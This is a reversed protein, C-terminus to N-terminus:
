RTGEGEEDAGQGDASLAREDRDGAAHETTMIGSDTTVDQTEELPEDPHGDVRRGGILNRAVSLARGAGTRISGSGGEDLVRGGAPRESSVEPDVHAGKPMEGGSGASGLFRRDFEDALWRYALSGRSSPDYAIAPQGYSPAESLRVSRPVVTDFVKDGFHQRVEEAVQESLKTRADYMTLVIGAIELEPNLGTRVLDINRLLQSLGELAYYECQIPVLLAQAATLGNVTLLGLSPPCDIFVVDYRETIPELASRLKTERAIASVLELEAGALDISSPLLDLGEYETSQVVDGAPVGEIVVEYVSTEVERHNVGVGTTANAQPDLDVLLIKRGLAALAAALNVATTTKGVGGKQNVITVRM